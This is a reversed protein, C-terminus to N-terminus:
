KRQEIKNKKEHEYNNKLIYWSLKEEINIVNNTMTKREKEV